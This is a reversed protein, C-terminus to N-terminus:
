RLPEKQWRGRRRRIYTLRPIQSRRQRITRPLASSELLFTNRTEMIIGIIRAEGASFGPDVAISILYTPETQGANVM